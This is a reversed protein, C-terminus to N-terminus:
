LKQWSGGADKSISSIKWNGDSGKYILKFKASDDKGKKAKCIVKVKTKNDKTYKENKSIKYVIYGAGIKAQLDSTIQDKSVPGTVSTSKKCAQLSLFLCISLVFILNKM